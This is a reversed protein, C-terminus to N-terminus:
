LAFILGYFIDTWGAPFQPTLSNSSFWGHEPKGTPAKGLGARTQFATKALGRQGEGDLGGGGEWLKECWGVNRLLIHMLRESQKM